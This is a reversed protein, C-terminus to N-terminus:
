QLSARVVGDRTEIQAQGEKSLVRLVDYTEALALVMSSEAYDGYLKRSLHYLTQPEEGLFTKMKEFKETYEERLSEVRSTIDMVPNRHGPLAILGDYKMIRSLSDFYRLMSIEVENEFDISPNSSITALIHDGSFIISAEECAFCTSGPSHGPVWLTELEGLGTSITSGDELLQIGSASEGFGLFYDTMIRRPARPRENAPTGALDIINFYSGVRNITFDEYTRVRDGDAKHVHVSPPERGLAVRSRIITATLGTHDVHGHTLVIQEIDGLSYGAERVGTDLASLSEDSKPGTDILTLPEGEVLYCNVPGVPFPTPVKITHIRSLADM